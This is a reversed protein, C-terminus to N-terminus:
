LFLKRVFNVELFSALNYPIMGSDQFWMPSGGLTKAANPSPLMIQSLFNCPFLIVSFEWSVSHETNLITDKKAEQFSLSFQM